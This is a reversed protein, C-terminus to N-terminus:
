HTRSFANKSDIAFKLPGASKLWDKGGVSGGEASAILAHLTNKQPSETQAQSEVSRTKAISSGWDRLRKVIGIDESSDVPRKKEPVKEEAQTAPRQEAARIAAQLRDIEAQISNPSSATSVQTNSSLPKPNMLSELDSKKKEETQTTNKQHLDASKPQFKESSFSGGIDHASVMTTPESEEEDEDAGFSLIKSKKAMIKPKSFIEPKTEPQKKGQIFPPKHNRPVLDPFPNDIVITELIVPPFDGLPRDNKDVDVEGIDSLVYISDGVLRGFLTHQGYLSEQKALTIFFQSGNTNTGKGQSAVGVLGRYRYRLRTHFEDPYPEGFISESGAGTNTPDGCQAIFNRIIRLFECGHYYGDLCLQVFNRCAKPCEKSWLEITLDGKSTKMLVKGQTPPEQVVIENM